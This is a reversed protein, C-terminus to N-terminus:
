ATVAMRAMRDASRRAQRYGEARYHGYDALTGYTGHLGRHRQRYDAYDAPTEARYRRGVEAYADTTTM